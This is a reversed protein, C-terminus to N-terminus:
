STLLKEHLEIVQPLVLEQENNNIVYDCLKMKIEDDMQRNMRALVEDRTCADRQMVRQIRLPKPTYVGIVYDLFEQAGSEFILAAEKLAYPTTQLQMWIDAAKITAPHVIANLQELKEPNNFVVEAIFYRNLQENKYAQNGFLEIIHQKISADENMIKKSAVDAYYVPMGLMEFAKAVTSKGSGIGGTIGIKLM